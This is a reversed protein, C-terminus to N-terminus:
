FLPSFINVNRSWSPTGHFLLLASGGDFAKGLIAAVGITAESFARQLLVQHQCGDQFGAFEIIQINQFEQERLLRSQLPEESQSPTLSTM